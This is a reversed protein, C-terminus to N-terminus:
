QSPPGIKVGALMNFVEGAMHSTGGSSSSAFTLQDPKAKALAILEQVSKAPLSANVVLVFPSVAALAVPSLDRVPDFRMNQYMSSLIAITSSTCLM